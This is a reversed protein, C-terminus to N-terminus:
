LLLFGRGRSPAGPGGRWRGASVGPLLGGLCSERRLAAAAAATRGRGRLRLPAAPPSRPPRPVGERRLRPARAPLPRWAAAEAAERWKKEPPPLASATPVAGPAPRPPQPREASLATPVAEPRCGGRPRPVPRALPTLLAGRLFGGSVAAFSLPLPRPVGGGWNCGAM